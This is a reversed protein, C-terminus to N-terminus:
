FTESIKRHIRMFGAVKYILWSPALMALMSAHLLKVFVNNKYLVDFSLKIRLLVVWTMKKSTEEFKFCAIVKDYLIKKGETDLNRTSQAAHIRYGYCSNLKIVQNMRRNVHIYYLWDELIPLDNQFYIDESLDSLSIFVGTPCGICNWHLHNSFVEGSPLNTNSYGGKKKGHYLKVGQGYFLSHGHANYADLLAKLYDKGLLDDGDMFGYFDFNKRNKFVYNLGFNRASSVGSSGENELLKVEYNLMECGLLSAHDLKIADLVIIHVVSIDNAVCSRLSAICDYLFQDVRNTPTIVAFKYM